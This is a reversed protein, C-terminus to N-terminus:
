IYIIVYIHIHMYIYATVILKLLLLLNLFCLPVLYQKIHKINISMMTLQKIYLM